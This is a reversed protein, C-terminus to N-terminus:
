AVDFGSQTLTFTGGDAAIEVWGQQAAYNLGPEFLEEDQGKGEWVRLFVPTIQVDGPKLMFHNVVVDLIALATEEAQASDTMAFTSRPPFALTACIIGM